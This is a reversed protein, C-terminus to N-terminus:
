DDCIKKLLKEAGEKQALEWISLNSKDCLAEYVQRIYDFMEPSTAILKTNAKFEFKQNSM